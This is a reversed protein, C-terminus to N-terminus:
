KSPEIIRRIKIGIAHMAMPKIAWKSNFSPELAYMKSRILLANVLKPDVM